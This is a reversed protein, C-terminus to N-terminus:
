SCYLQVEILCGGEILHDAILTGFNNDTFYQLYVRILQSGKLQGWSPDGIREVSSGQNLPGRNLLTRQIVFLM